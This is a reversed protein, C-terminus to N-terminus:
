FIVSFVLNVSLDVPTNTDASGFVTSATVSPEFFFSRSLPQSIGLGARLFLCDDQPSQDYTIISAGAAVQVWPETSGIEQLYLRSNLALTRQEFQEEVVGGFFGQSQSDFNGGIQHFLLGLEFEPTLRKGVEISFPVEGQYDLGSQNEDVSIGAGVGFRIGSHRDPDGIPDQRRGRPFSHEFNKASSLPYSVPQSSVHSACAALASASFAILLKSPMGTM